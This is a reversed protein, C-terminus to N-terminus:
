FEFTPSKPWSMKAFSMKAMQLHLTPHQIFQRHKQKVYSRVVCDLSKIVRLFFATSFVTSFFSFISTNEGKRVTNELLSIMIEVVDIKDDAFAKLKSQDLFEDVTLSYTYLSFFNM